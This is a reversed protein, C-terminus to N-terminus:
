EEEESNSNNPVWNINNDIIQDYIIKEYLTMDNPNKSFLYIIFIIYKMYDHEEKIHQVFDIGQSAADNNELNCIYCLENKDKAIKDTIERQDGFADTILSTFVNSLMADMLLFAAINFFFIGLAIGGHMKFSLQETLDDVGDWLGPGLYMILCQISSYCYPEQVNIMNGSGDEDVEVAQNDMDVVEYTHLAPFFQFGIWMFVYLVVWNGFFVWWIEVIKKTMATM